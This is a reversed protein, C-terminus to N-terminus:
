GEGLLAGYDLYLYRELRDQVIESDLPTGSYFLLYVDDIGYSQIYDRANAGADFIAYGNDRFDTSLM